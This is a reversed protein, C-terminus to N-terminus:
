ANKHDKSNMYLNHEKRVQEKDIPKFTRFVIIQLCRETFKVAADIKKESLHPEIMWTDVCMLTLIIIKNSIKINPNGFLALYTLITIACTIIYPRCIICAIRVVLKTLVRDTKTIKRHVKMKKDCGKKNVITYFHIYFVMVTDVDM